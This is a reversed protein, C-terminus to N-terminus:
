QPSQGGSVGRTKAEGTLSAQDKRRTRSVDSKVEPVSLTATPVCATARSGLSGWQKRLGTRDMISLELPRARACPEFCSRVAKDGCKASDCCGRLWTVRPGGCPTLSRLTPAGAGGGSSSHKEM